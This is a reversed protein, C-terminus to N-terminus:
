SGVIASARRALRRRVTPYFSQRALPEEASISLLEVLESPAAKKLEDASIKEDDNADVSALLLCYGLAEARLSLQRLVQQTIEQKTIVGDQDADERSFTMRSRRDLGEEDLETGEEAEIQAAYEAKSVQGDGDKDLKLKELTQRDVEKQLAAKIEDISILRDRNGDFSVLLAADQSTTASSGGPGGGGHSPGGGGHSHGGGSAMQARMEEFAAQFEELSVEGDEAYKSGTLRANIESGKLVGDGDQDFSKFREAPDFGGRGGAGGGRNGGGRNGGGQGRQDRGAEGVRQGRGGRNGGRGQNGRAESSAEAQAGFGLPRVAKIVELLPLKGDHDQDLAQFGQELSATMTDISPSESEAAIASATSAAAIAVIFFVATRM